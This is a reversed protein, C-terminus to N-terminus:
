WNSNVVPDIVKDAEGNELSGSTWRTWRTRVSPYSGVWAQPTNTQVGHMRAENYYSLTIYEQSTTNLMTNM